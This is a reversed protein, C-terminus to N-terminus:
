QWPLETLPKQMLIKARYGDEERLFREHKGYIQFGHRKYLRIAPNNEYVELHLLAISFKERALKEIENLLLSGVGQNRFEQSILIAFLCQHKLKQFPQIYLNSIGCPVSEYEATICSGKTSYSVWNKAADEVERENSMPFWRLVGPEMLWQILYKLDKQQSVRFAIKQTDIM